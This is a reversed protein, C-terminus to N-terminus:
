MPWVRVGDIENDIRPLEIRESTFREEM